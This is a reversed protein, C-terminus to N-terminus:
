VIKSKIKNIMDIIINKEELCIYGNKIYNDNKDRIEAYNKGDMIKENKWKSKDVDSAYVQNNNCIFEELSGLVFYISDNVKKNGNLIDMVEDYVFKKRGLMLFDNNSEYTYNNLYNIIDNLYNIAANKNNINNKSHYGYFKKAIDKRKLKKNFLM